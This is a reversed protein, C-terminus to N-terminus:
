TLPRLNSAIQFQDMGYGGSRFEYRAGRLGFCMARLVCKGFDWEVRSLGEATLREVRLERGFPEPGFPEDCASNVLRNGSSKIKLRKGWARQEM